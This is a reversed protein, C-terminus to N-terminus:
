ESAGARFNYVDSEDEIEHGIIEEILDEITVVGIISGGREVPMMHTHAAIFKKFMTDLATMSGVTRTKHLPMQGVRYSKEDFDIDILDKMLLIGHCQSLNRNFVPIRSWNNDKIEDIRESNLETDPTLWFTQEIPTAIDRVRKNSLSLAGRMIEAEDEDLESKDTEDLHESIIMGLEGRSLLRLGETGLFRDLLLQTPKSIPYSIIIMVKLLPALRAVTNLAKKTFLAQPLIEGFYVLLFTSTIGAVIGNFRSELVLATASAVAVNVLLISALTLHSNKRLPLVVRARKNGNKAKRQLDNLELSMLSINLGSCIGSVGVLVVAALITPLTDM